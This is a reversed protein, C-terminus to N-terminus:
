RPKGSACPPQYPVGPLYQRWVSPNLVNGTDACIRSVASEPNLKWLYVSGNNSLTAFSDGVPSFATNLEWEPNPELPNGFPAFRGQPTRSWIRITQDRDTTVLWNSDRSVALGTIVDADGTLEYAPQTVNRGEANWADIGNDANADVLLPSHPIFAVLSVSGMGSDSASRFSRGGTVSIGSINWVSVAGTYDNTAALLKGQDSFAVAPLDSQRVITSWRLRPAGLDGTDWVQINGYDDPNGMSLGVALLGTSPSFDMSFVDSKPPSVPVPNGMLRPEHINSIDWFELYGNSCVAALINRGGRRTLSFHEVFGDCVQPLYSAPGISDAGTVPNVQIQDGQKTFDVEVLDAGDGTFEIENVNEDTNTNTSVSQAIKWIRMSGDGYEAIIGNGDPTLEMSGVAGGPARVTQGVSLLHSPSNRSGPAIGWWSIQGEQDGTALLSGGPVFLMDSIPASINSSGIRVPSRLNQTNWVQFNNDIPAAVALLSASANMKVSDVPNSSVQLDGVTTPRPSSMGSVIAVSGSRCGAAMVSGSSVFDASEIRSNACPKVTSELVPRGAVNWVQLESSYALVFEGSSIFTSGFLRESGKRPVPLVEKVAPHVPNALNWLRAHGDASAIGLTRGSDSFSVGVIDAGKVGFVSAPVNIRIPSGPLTINWLQMGQSTAVALIKGDASVTFNGAHSGIDLRKALADQETTLLNTYGGPTPHMRYAAAYLVASLSTDTSSLKGAEASVQQFEAEAQASRAQNRQITAYGALLGAVLTLATLAALASRKLRSDRHRLRVAADLFRAARPSLEATVDGHAPATRAREGPRRAFRWIGPLGVEIGLKEAANDLRLGRYLLSQDHGAREWEQAAGEAEQAARLSDRDADIWGRLRPWARLLVEHTIEVQNRDRSLLRAATYLEILRALASPDEGSEALERAALRRRTDDGSDGIVTLRLFLLRSRARDKDDLRKYAREATHAIGRSMGGAAEYGAVTLLRGSRQQWTARLAHALLPLRGAEYGGRGQGGESEVIGLDRILLEALGPELDLGVSRAPLLIAQHLEERTMPGLLLQNAQLAARLEPYGSAHAYFDARLGLVVLVPSRASGDPEALASVAGVFAAREAEDECLTFAEEFQDIVLVIRGPHEQGTMSGAVVRALEPSRNRISEALLGASLGTATALCEALVASPSATPTMVLRPWSPSGQDPLVGREIAPILGARLLSSKGVGSSAVLVVPGRVAPDALLDTLEVLHRRRGFFWQADGAGFSSLGPYPCAAEGPSESDPARGKAPEGAAGEFTIYINQGAIYQRADGKARAEIASGSQDAEPQADEDDREEDGNQGSADQQSSM